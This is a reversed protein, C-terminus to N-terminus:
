KVLIRASDRMDIVSINRGLINHNKNITILNAIAHQFDYEPLKITIGDNTYINWRREEIWEIYDIESAMDAAANTIAILSDDGKPVDGRFLLASEPREASPNQVITGDDSLPYYNEGDTWAAVFKHYSVRVRLTSNPLRRVAADKVEPLNLLNATLTDLDISYMPTNKPMSIAGTLKTLDKNETDTTFSIKHVRALDGHGLGVMITRSIFYIAMLIAVIFSLWFWISRRMGQM